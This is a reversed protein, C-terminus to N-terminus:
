ILSVRENTANDGNGMIWPVHEKKTVKASFVNIRHEL